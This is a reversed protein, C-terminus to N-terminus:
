QLELEGRDTRARGAAPDVSMLVAGSPLQEGVRVARPVGSRADPVLVTLADKVAVLRDVDPAARSRGHDRTAVDRRAGEGAAAARTTADRAAIHQATRADNLIPADEVDKRPQGPLVRGAVARRGRGIVKASRAPAASVPVAASARGSVADLAAIASGGREGAPDPRAAARTLVFAPVPFAPASAAPLAMASGERAASAEPGAPLRRAEAVAGAPRSGGPPVNTAPLSGSGVAGVVPGFRYVLASAGLGVLAGLAGLALARVRPAGQGRPPRAEAAKRSAGRAGHGAADAVPFSAAGAAVARAQVDERRLIWRGRRVDFVLARSAPVAGTFRPTGVPVQVTRRSPLLPLM